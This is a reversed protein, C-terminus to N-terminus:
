EKKTKNLDERKLWGFAILLENLFEVDNKSYFAELAPRPEDKYSRVLIEIITNDIKELMAEDAKGSSLTKFKRKDKMRVDLELEQDDVKIELKGSLYSDFRGM